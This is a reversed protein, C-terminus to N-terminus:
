GSADPKAPRVGGVVLLTYLMLESLEDLAREWAGSMGLSALAVLGVLGFALGDGRPPIWRPRQAGRLAMAYLWVWPVAFLLYSAGGLGNHLNHVGFVNVFGSFGLQAGWDLEEALVLLCAAVILWAGSGERTRVRAWVLAAILLVTHSAVEAPGEKSLVHLLWAPDVLAAVGAAAGVALVWAAAAWMRANPPGAM